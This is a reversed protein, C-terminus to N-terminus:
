RQIGKEANSRSHHSGVRQITQEANSSLYHSDVLLNQVSGRGNNFSPIIRCIHHNNETLLKFATVVHDHLIHM